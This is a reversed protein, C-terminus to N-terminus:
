GDCSTCHQIEQRGGQTEDDQEESQEMGDLTGGNALYDSFVKWWEALEQMNVRVERGIPITKLPYKPHKRMKWLTTRGVHLWECVEELTLVEPLMSEECHCKDREKKPMIGDKVIVKQIYLYTDTIIGHPCREFEVIFVQSCVRVGV